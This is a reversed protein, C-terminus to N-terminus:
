STSCRLPPGAPVNSLTLHLRTGQSAGAGNQSGPAFYGSEFQTNGPNFTASGQGKFATAFGEEIEIAAHSEGDFCQLGSATETVNSIMGLIPVAVTLVNNNIPINTPGTLSVFALVQPGPFSPQDPIGLQSANARLSTFRLTTTSPHNGGPISAGPVPFNITDWELRNVNRLIGHQPDQVAPNPAGCVGFVPSAQPDTCNNENVIMAADTIEQSVEFGKNNTINVNLSISANIIVNPGPGGGGSQCALIIDGVLEAIGEARVVPPVATATCSLLGPLRAQATVASFLVVIVALNLRLRFSM